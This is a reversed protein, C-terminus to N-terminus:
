RDLGQDDMSCPDEAPGLRATVHGGPIVEGLDREIRDVWDHAEKVSWKGPVLVHLSIFSRRGAQRTRLAHYSIGHERYRGLAATVRALDDDPLSVDM